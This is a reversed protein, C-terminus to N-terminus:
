VKGREDRNKRRTKHKIKKHKSMSKEAVQFENIRESLESVRTELKDLSTIVKDMDDKMPFYRQKLSREMIDHIYNKFETSKEIAKETTNTFLPNKLWVELAQFMYKEWSEYLKKFYSLYDLESETKRSM